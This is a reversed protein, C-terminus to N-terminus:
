EFAQKKLLSAPEYRKNIESLRSLLDYVNKLGIKKSWEFPGYPYNTGLTMAVDIADQTSVKEDLAFYTENIIM